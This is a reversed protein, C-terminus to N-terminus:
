NDTDIFQRRDNFVSFLRHHYTISLIVSLVTVYKHTVSFCRSIYFRTTFSFRSLVSLAPIFDYKACRCTLVDPSSLVSQFFFYFPAKGRSSYSPLAIPANCKVRIHIHKEFHYGYITLLLFRHCM